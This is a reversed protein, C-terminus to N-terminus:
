GSVYLVTTGALSGSTTYKYVTAVGATVYLLSGGFGLGDPNAIAPSVLFSSQVAGTAPDLKYIYRSSTLAWLYDAGYALGVVGTAPAAFSNVIQPEASAVAVGLALLIFAKKM